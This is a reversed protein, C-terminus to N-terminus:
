YQYGSQEAVNLGLKFQAFKDRVPVTGIQSQNQQEDMNKLIATFYYSIKKPSFPARAESALLGTL